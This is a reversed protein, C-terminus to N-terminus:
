NLGSLQIATLNSQLIDADAYHEFCQLHLPGGPHNVAANLTGYTEEERGTEVDFDITTSGLSCTIASGTDDDRNMVTVNATLFYAGAPLDLTLVNVTGGFPLFGGEKFWGHPLGGAAPPAGCDLGGGSTVGEVFQGSTCAQDARAYRQPAWTGGSTKIVSDGTGASSPLRYGPEISFTGGTLDLGTGAAFTSNADEACAWGTGNWKAIEGTACGQPLQFGPALSLAVAGNTGGGQLGTGATISTIDGGSFRVLVMGGGCPSSPALGETIRIIVGDKSVLCGSYTKVNDDPFAAIAQGALLGLVGIAAVFATLRRKM